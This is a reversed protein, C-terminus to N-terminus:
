VLLLENKYLCFILFFLDYCIVQLSSMVGTYFFNDLKGNVDRIM